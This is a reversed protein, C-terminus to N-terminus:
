KSETEELHDFIIEVCKVLREAVSVIRQGALNPVITEDMAIDISLQVETDAEADAVGVPFWRALVTGDRLIGPLAQTIGKEANFTVNRIFTVQSESAQIRCLHITRHKDIISLQHLWWLVSETTGEKRLNYPQLKEIMSKTNERLGRIKRPADERFKGRDDFVPFESGKVPAGNHRLTLEYVAHDLSSRLNHVLDGLVYPLTSPIPRTPLFVVMKENPDTNVQHRIEYPKSEIFTQVESELANLHLKARDIKGVVSDPFVRSDM